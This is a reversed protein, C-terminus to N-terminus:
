NLGQSPYHVIQTLVMIMEKNAEPARINGSVTISSTIVIIMIIPRAGGM